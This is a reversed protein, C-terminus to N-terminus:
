PLRAIGTVQAVIRLIKKGYNEVTLKVDEAISVTPPAIDTIKRSYVTGLQSTKRPWVSILGLDYWTDGLTLRVSAFATAKCQIQVHTPRFAAIPSKSVRGEGFPAVLTLGLPLVWTIIRETLLNPELLRARDERRKGSCRLCTCFCFASNCFTGEHMCKM